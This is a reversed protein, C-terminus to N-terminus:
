IDLNNKECATQQLFLLAEKRKKGEESKGEEGLRKGTTGKALPENSLNFIFLTYHTIFLTGM